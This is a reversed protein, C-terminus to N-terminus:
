ASKQKQFGYRYLGLLLPYMVIFTFITIFILEGQGSTDKLGYYITTVIVDIVSIIFIIKWFSQSFFQKKYVYGYFGVTSIISIIMSVIGIVTGVLGYSNELFISVILLVLMIWFYIKWLM